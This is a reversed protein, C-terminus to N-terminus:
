RSNATTEKTPKKAPEAAPKKVSEAVKSSLSKKQAPNAKAGTNAKPWKTEPVYTNTGSVKLYRIGDKKYVTRGNVQEQTPVYGGTSTEPQAVPSSPTTQTQPQTRTGTTVAPRSTGTAPDYTINKGLGFATRFADNARERPSDEFPEKSLNEMIKMFVSGASLGKFDPDNSRSLEESKAWLDNVTAENMKFYNQVEQKTLKDSTIAGMARTKFDDRRKFFDDWPKQEAEKHQLPMPRSSAGGANPDRIQITKLTQKLSDTVKSDGSKESWEIMQKLRDELDKTNKYPELSEKLMDKSSTMEGARSAQSAKITDGYVNAVNEQQKQYDMLPEYKQMNGGVNLENVNGYLGGAIRGISDIVRDWMQNKQSNLTKEEYDTGAKALRDDISKLVRQLDGKSESTLIQRMMKNTGYQKDINFAGLMSESIAKRKVEDPLKRTKENKTDTQVDRVLLTTGPKFVGLNKVIGSPPIDKEPVAVVEAGYLNNMIGNYKKIDNELSARMIKKQADNMPNEVDLDFDSLRQNLAAIQYTLADMTLPFRGDERIIKSSIDKSAGTVRQRAPLHNGDKEFIEIIDPKYKDRETYHSAVFNRSKRAQQAISPNSSELAQNFLEGEMYEAKELAEPDYQSISNLWEETTQPTKISQVDPSVGFKQDGPTSTEASKIAPTTPTETPVPSNVNSKKNIDKLEATDKEWTKTSTDVPDYLTGPSPGAKDDSWDWSQYRPPELDEMDTFPIKAFDTVPQQPVMDNEPTNETPIEVKPPLRFQEFGPDISPQAATFEQMDAREQETLQEGRKQKEVLQEAQERTIAM